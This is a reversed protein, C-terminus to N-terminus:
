CEGAPKITQDACCDFKFTKYPVRSLKDGCCKTKQIEENNNNNLLSPRAATLEREAKVNCKEERKFNKGVRFEDRIEDEVSLLRRAFNADCECLDSQCQTNHSTDGCKVNGNIKQYWEYTMSHKCHKDSSDIKACKYCSWLDRCIADIEDVPDGRGVYDDKDFNVPMCYCGYDFFDDIKTTDTYNPDIFTALFSKFNLVKGELLLKKIEKKDMNKNMSSSFKDQWIMIAEGLSTTKFGRQEQLASDDDADKKNKKEKKKKKKKDDDSPGERSFILSSPDLEEGPQSLIEESATLSSFILSMQQLQEIADNEFNSTAADNVKLVGYYGLLLTSFARVM